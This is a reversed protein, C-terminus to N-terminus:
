HNSSINAFDPLLLRWLAQFSLKHSRMGKNYAKGAMVHEITSSGLIGAEAWAEALGCDKTHQGIVKLFNMSIHLGCLRPILKDKYEPITWKLDMLKYYLAQDVTLVTYEPLLQLLQVTTIAASEASRKSLPQNFASWSRRTEKNQRTV